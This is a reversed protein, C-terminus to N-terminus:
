KKKWWWDSRESPFTDWFDFTIGLLLALFAIAIAICIALGGVLDKM